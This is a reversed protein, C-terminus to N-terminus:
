KYKEEYRKDFADHAEADDVFQCTINRALADIDIFDDDPDSPYSYRGTYGDGDRGNRRENWAAIEPIGWLIPELKVTLDNLPVITMGLGDFTFEKHIAAAFKITATELSDPVTYPSMSVAWRAFAGTFDTVFLYVERDIRSHQTM